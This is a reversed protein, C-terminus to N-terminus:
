SGHMLGSWAWCVLFKCIRPCKSVVSFFLPSYKGSIFTKSIRTRCCCNRAGHVKVTASTLKFQCTDMFYCQRPPLARAENRLNDVYDDIARLFVHACQIAECPCHLTCEWLHAIVQEAAQSAFGVTQSVGATRIELEQTRAQPQGLVHM